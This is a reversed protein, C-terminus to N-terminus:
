FMERYDMSFRVKCLLFVFSFVGLFCNFKRKFLLLLFSNFLGALFFFLPSLTSFLSFFLLCAALYPPPPPPHAADHATAACVLLGEWNVGGGVGVKGREEGGGRVIGM